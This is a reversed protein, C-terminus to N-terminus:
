PFHITVFAGPHRDRGDSEQSPEVRAALTENEGRLSRARPLRSSQKFRRDPPDNLCRAVMIGQGLDRTRSTKSFHRAASFLRPQATYDVRLLDTLSSGPRKGEWRCGMDRSFLVMLVSRGVLLEWRSAFVVEVNLNPEQVKSREPLIRCFLRRPFTSANTQDTRFVLRRNNAAPRPKMAMFRIAERTRGAVVRKTISSMMTLRCM